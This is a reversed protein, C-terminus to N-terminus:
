WKAVDGDLRIKAYGVNVTLPPARQMLVHARGHDGRIDELAASQCNAEKEDRQSWGATETSRRGSQEENPDYLSKALREVSLQQGSKQAILTRIM